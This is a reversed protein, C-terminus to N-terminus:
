SQPYEIDHLSKLAAMACSKKADKKSRGSGQFSRGQIEVTMHFLNGPVTGISGEFPTGPYLENLLMVPHKSTPDEPMKSPNHVFNEQQNNPDAKAINPVPNPTAMFQQPLIYGQSQWDNFLKFLGLSALARWPANDALDEGEINPNDSKVSNTIFAHIAGEAAINKAIDKSPGTGSFTVPCSGTVTVECPFFQMRGESVPELFNYSISTQEQQALEELIQVPSKPSIIRRLRLNIYNKKETKSWKKNHKNKKIKGDKTKNLESKELMDQMITDDSVLTLSSDPTQNTEMTNSQTPAPFPKSGMPPIPKAPNLASGTTCNQNPVSSNGQQVRTNYNRYPM